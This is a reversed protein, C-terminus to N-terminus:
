PTTFQNVYGNRAFYRRFPKRSDKVLGINYLSTFHRSFPM